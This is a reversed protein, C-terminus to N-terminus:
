KKEAESYLESMAMIRRQLKNRFMRPALVKVTEGFGIIERELEFNWVVDLQFITGAEDTKLVQQSRHLPKTLIYPATAADAQFILRITQMNLSKTVGITDDYFTEPDFLTNKQYRITTQEIQQIRDLALTQLQMSEKACILFWRNRFEKLLYPFVTVPSPQASKFSQYFIRLTKKALIAKHLPDIHELGRVLENQEFHIFSRGKHQQKYIKAELRNVMESLEGFYAFGKFQRLVDAVEALTGLDQQSLPNSTISYKPDEYSYYKKDTVVIPANYGLKDSRMNQIDLQITRRSVGDHIGEYEYLAESCAEILDELTWQRFRNQLCRDITKYRILASKNIPM